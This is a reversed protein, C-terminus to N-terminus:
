FSGEPSTIKKKPAKADFYGIHWYQCDKHGYTAHGTGYKTGSACSCSCM